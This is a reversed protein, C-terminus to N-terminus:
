SCYDNQEDDRLNGIFDAHISAIVENNKKDM